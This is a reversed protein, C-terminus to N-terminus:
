SVKNSRDSSVLICGLTVSAMHGLAKGQRQLVDYNIVEGNRVIFSKM